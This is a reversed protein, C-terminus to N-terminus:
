VKQQNPGEEKSAWLRVGGTTAQVEAIDGARRAIQGAEELALRQHRRELPQLMCCKILAYGILCAALFAFAILATLRANTISKDVQILVREREARREEEVLCESLRVWVGQPLSLDRWDERERLVSYRDALAQAPVSCLRPYEACTRSAKGFIEGLFGVFDALRVRGTALLSEVKKCVVTEVSTDSIRLFDGLLHVQAHVSFPNPKNADQGPEATATPRPSPPSDSSYDGTYLCDLLRDVTEAAFGVIDMRNPTRAELSRKAVEAIAPSRQCVVVKHVPFECCPKYALRRQEPVTLDIFVPNPRAVPVTMIAKIAVYRPRMRRVRKRRTAVHPGLDSKPFDDRERKMLLQVVEKCLFQPLTLALWDKRDCLREYLKSHTDAILACLDSYGACTQSIVELFLVFEELDVPKRAVKQLKACVVPEIRSKAVELYDGLRLVQAHLLWDSLESYSVSGGNQPASSAVTESQSTAKSDTTPCSEKLSPTSTYDGTYMWDLLRDVIDADFPGITM